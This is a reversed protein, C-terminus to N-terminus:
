KKKKRKLYSLVGTSKLLLYTLGGLCGHVALGGIAIAVYGGNNDVEELMLNFTSWFGIVLALAVITGILIGVSRRDM